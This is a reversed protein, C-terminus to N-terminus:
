AAGRAEASIALRDGVKAWLADGKRCFTVEEGVIVPSKLRYSFESLGPVMLMLCQALLPGHVVLGGHGEVDRAYDRDYHIRHGNFTLASYRFLTVESFMRTEAEDAGGPAEPAQPIPAGPRPDQRYVIDQRETLCREGDQWVEHHVTVFALPGSRGPKRVVEDAYSHKEARQGALLPRDWTLSGGAWMRRPLGTDPLVVGPAPHGDRGLRAPPHIDWFYLQHFFPPLPDGTKISMPQGLTAQMARARAPDMPDSLISTM